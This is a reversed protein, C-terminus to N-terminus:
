KLGYIEFSKSLFTSIILHKLALLLRFTFFRRLMRPGMTLYGLDPALSIARFTPASVARASSGPEIGLVWM